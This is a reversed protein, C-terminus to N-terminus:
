GEPNWCAVRHSTGPATEALTPPSEDCTGPVRRACRPHFGCGRPPALPSPPEGELVVRLRRQGPEATPVASLLARTYPHRPAGFVAETPGLEVIRGLYMVAVRHSMAEIVRLDHSVFLYSLGHEEQLDLLLNVIQAQVSVDLASVPEDLVLFSPRTALARAIGVRQRQGGSLEHPLRSAAAAPLGVRVLLEAVRADRESRARFLGHIELPEALTEGLTLRPDLSSYPDQFVIQMRRRLPRLERQTLHTFETGELFLRGVTPEVLRLLTRGLTTKGCGTEGVLGLTEGARVYLSVDNVARVLVPRALLRPRVHFVTTLQEARLLPM